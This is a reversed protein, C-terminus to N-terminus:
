FLIWSKDVACSLLSTCGAAWLPRPIFHCSQTFHMTKREWELKGRLLPQQAWSVTRLTRNTRWCLPQSETQKVVEPTLKVLSCVTGSVALSCVGSWVSFCLGSNQPMLSSTSFCSPVSASGFLVSEAPLDPWVQGCSAQPTLHLLLLVLCWRVTRVPSDCRGLLFLCVITGEMPVLPQRAKWFWAGLM